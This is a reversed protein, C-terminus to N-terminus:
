VEPGAKFVQLPDKCGWSSVALVEGVEVLEDWPSGVSGVSCLHETGIFNEKQCGEECLLLFGPQTRNRVATFDWSLLESNIWHLTPLWALHMLLFAVCSLHILMSAQRRLLGPLVNCAAMAKDGISDGVRIKRNWRTLGLLSISILTGSLQSNKNESLKRKTKQIVKYRLFLCFLSQQQQTWFFFITIAIM